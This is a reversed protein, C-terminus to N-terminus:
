SHGGLAFFDDRRGVRGPELRLVGAWVEALSQELPTRPLEHEPAGAAGDEPAPLSKRDVKGSPTLPLAELVAFASPVMYAPLRRSLFTRLATVELTRAEPVPAGDRPLTRLETLAVTAGEQMPAGDRPSTRLGTVEFTSGEPVPAGDRSVSSAPVVYAVLRAGGPGDDRAVVVADGVDPHSRLAAEVEGLEIRFGRLKVQFDLRGLYELTGDSLWRALDGTRYLRAGATGSFPDPVFREATLEPRRWYGRGVQIGGILLEGPVGVPALQGHRDVIYIRTNAVPRGIPVVPRADDRPCAHYTVDVAAETPGYLNHVQAAPLRAQARRVVPAPLAEGSCVVQRLHALRELGPEEVFAQLMSPVFHATTVREQEMLRVLYAPDQHGGPRALVLRAGTMLPWFFEWVSVDFSFPTKQLVTDAATLGYEGQMWLLRNVIGAHANMAGKPRGTSGSTFIVYALSNAGALLPPRTDPERSVTDGDLCLVRASHPPVVDRLSQWTLLVSADSDEMMWALREKPYAPDLPVYAGGAKLVGLLAVVLDLSRELCVGVRSEPGVGLSRLHHALQNARADLQAYTLAAGEFRVAEAGPTREVQAEILSHLCVDHPYAEARGQFDVLLSRQEDATLLRLESLRLAPNSTVAELLVQLHTVWRRVTEERFLDTRYGVHGHVGDPGEAFSLTLEFKASDGEVAVPHLSLATDQRPGADPTNQLILMVQFLPSRGLDRQPRLEEVLKEFPLDQHAQAGLMTERVRGLLARFSPDGDLRTRLALTNIFLGVLGELEAFRRGAIPTGVVVDDQGSHRSLVVQFAGLLGMFLTVGEARCLAQLERSLEPSLQFGFSAGRSSTVAPRPFDTPLELAHPAGTLQGKWYTLQAELVEDRLWERQWVCYDAYQLPLEPLAVPSGAVAGVYLAELERVLVGSSWGDCIIHHLTLLLLHRAESLRLLSVRLLPGRALDFPRLAEERTLRRAEAEGDERERLDTVRVHVPGPPDLVQVPIGGEDPFRTRLSEHRHVLETFAQELAGVDLRGEVRLFTPVNYTTAGPQLRDLFWLRQQAFSLPLPGNRPVPRPASQTISRTVHEVHRALAELTPAEFLVRLPLEVGMVARLRSVLQTALLSHGGLEFFDDHLGVREVHLLEAWLTALQQETATRPAVYEPAGPARAGEPAPLAARDVKGHSSLPLVPLEAIVAPVMHEPLRQKLAHRLAAVDLTDGEEAVVYAVLRRDGPADERVLAVAERVSPHQTLAAEVEGLEIRFGRLKVQ